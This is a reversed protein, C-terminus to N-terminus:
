LGISIIQRCVPCRPYGTALRKINACCDVCTVVHGCPVFKCQAANNAMCVICEDNDM